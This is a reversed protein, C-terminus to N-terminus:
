KKIECNDIAYDLMITILENRSLNAAQSIEDLKKVTENPIRISFNKFGDEGLRKQIVLKDNAM